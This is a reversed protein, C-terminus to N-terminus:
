FDQGHVNERGGNCHKLEPPIGNAATIAASEQKSTKNAAYEGPVCAQCGETGARKCRTTDLVLVM